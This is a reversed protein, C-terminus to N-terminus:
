VTRNTGIESLGGISGDNTSRAGWVTDISGWIAADTQTELTVVSIEQLSNVDGACTLKLTAQNYTYDKTTLRKIM